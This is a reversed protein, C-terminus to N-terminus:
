RRYYGGIQPLIRMPTNEVDQTAAYTWAENYDADLGARFAIPDVGQPPPYCRALRKALGAVLVDLWRYPLDPTEGGTLSADQIQSCAYYNFTYPGNGDPVPWFTVTPSILRDFWYNIPFGQTQKNAQSAYDTRSFPTVYRDTQNSQGNNLSVYADLIMVVRGPVTYTATGETLDTSILEVKWLDVQRNSLEVFLLNIERRATLMHEQRISPPHITCRAFAALVAEGNSLSYSYTGSSTM